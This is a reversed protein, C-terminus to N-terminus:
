KKAKRLEVPDKWRFYEADKTISTMQDNTLPGLLIDDEEQKGTLFGNELGAKFGDSNPGWITSLDEKRKYVGILAWKGNLSRDEENKLHWLLLLTDDVKRVVVEATKLTLTDKDDEIWAATLLGAKPEKVKVTVSGKDWIWTGNWDDEQIEAPEGAPKELIIRHCGTVLTLALLCLFLFRCNM